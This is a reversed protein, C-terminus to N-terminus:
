KVLCVESRQQRVNSIVLCLLRGQGAIFSSVPQTLALRLSLKGGTWISDACSISVPWGPVRLELVHQGLHPETHAQPIHPPEWVEAVLISSTLTKSSLSTGQERPANQHM